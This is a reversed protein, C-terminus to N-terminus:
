LWLEMFCLLWCLSLVLNSIWEFLLIFLKSYIFETIQFFFFNFYAIKKPSEHSIIYNVKDYAIKRIEEFDKKIEAEKLLKKTENILDNNDNNIKTNMRSESPDM